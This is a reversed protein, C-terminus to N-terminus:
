INYKKTRFNGMQAKRHKRSEQQCERYKWENTVLINEKIEILITTKFDSDSLELLWIMEPNAESWRRKVTPRLKRSRQLGIKSQISFM